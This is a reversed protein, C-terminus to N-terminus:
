HESGGPTSAWWREVQEGVGPRTTQEVRNIFRELNLGLWYVFASDVLLVGLTAKFFPTM